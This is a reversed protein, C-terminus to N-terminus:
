LSYGADERTRELLRRESRSGSSSARRRARDMFIMRDRAALASHKSSSAPRNVAYGILAEHRIDAFRHRRASAAPPRAISAELPPLRAWHLSM